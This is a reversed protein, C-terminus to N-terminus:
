TPLGVSADVEYPRGESPSSSRWVQVADVTWSAAPVEVSRVTSDRLGRRRSRALTVHPRVPQLHVPLGADALGRQIADGFSAVSGSPDDHVGAWLVSRGFRGAEGLRLSTPLRGARRDRGLAASAAAADVCSRVVEVVAALDGDPLEGLFALTVHWGQPPTWRLEDHRERLPALASSLADRVAPPVELAVFRRM